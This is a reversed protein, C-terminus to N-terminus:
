AQAFHFVVKSSSGHSTHDLIVPLMTMNLQSYGVSLMKAAMVHCVWNSCKTRAMWNRKTKAKRLEKYGIYSEALGAFKSLFSAKSNGMFAPPAMLFVADLLDNYEPKESLLILIEACGMSHCIYFFPGDTESINYIYDFCAILDGVAAAEIDFDWFRQDSDPDM